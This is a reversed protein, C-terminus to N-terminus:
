SGISNCNLMGNVCTGGSAGAGGSGSKCNGLVAEEPRLQVQRLRPKQYTKKINNNTNLENKM